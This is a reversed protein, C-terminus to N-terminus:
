YINKTEIDLVQTWYSNYKTPVATCHLDVPQIRSIPFARTELMCCASPLIQGSIILSLQLDIDQSADRGVLMNSDIVTTQSVFCYLGGAPALWLLASFVSIIGKQEPSQKYFPVRPGPHRMKIGKKQRCHTTVNTFVPCPPTQTDFYHKIM